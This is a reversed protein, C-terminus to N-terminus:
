RLKVDIATMFLTDGSKLSINSDYRQTLGLNVNCLPTLAIAMGTDLVGRVGEGARLAPFLSLKQRFWLAGGWRQQSEAMLMLGVSESITESGSRSWFAKGGFRWRMDTTQSRAKAASTPRRPM